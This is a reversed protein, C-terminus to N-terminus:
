FKMWNAQMEDSPTEKQAFDMMAHYTQWNQNVSVHHIQFAHGPKHTTSAGPDSHGSMSATFM